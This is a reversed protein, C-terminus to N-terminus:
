KEFRQRDHESHAKQRQAPAGAEHDRGGNREDQRDDEDRHRDQPEVQLANRQARQDDREPEKDVVGDDRGFHDHHFEFLTPIALARGREGPGRRRKRHQRSRQDGRDAEHRDPEGIGRGAFIRAANEPHDADRQHGRPKDRHQERRKEAVLEQWIELRPRMAVILARNVRRAEIPEEAAREFEADPPRKDNYPRRDQQEGEAKALEAFNLVLEERQRFPGLQEELKPERLSTRDLRSLFDRPFGFRQERAIFVGFAERGVDALTRRAEPEAELGHLGVFGERLDHDDGLVDLRPFPDLGADLGGHGLARETRRAHAEVAEVEARRDAEGDLKADHAGIRILDGLDGGAHALDHARVIADDVRM